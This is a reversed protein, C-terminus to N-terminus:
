DGEKKVTHEYKMSINKMPVDIYVGGTLTIDFEVAMKSNLISDEKQVWDAEGIEMEVWNEDVAVGKSIGKLFETFINEVKEEDYDGIIVHLVTIREFLKKRTIRQGTQDEYIKKSKSRTLKEGVRLVAGVHTENCNKLSKLSDHIKGHIGAAQLEKVIFDREEKM